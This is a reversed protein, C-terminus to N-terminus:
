CPTVTFSAEASVPRGMVNARVIYDGPPLVFPSLQVDPGAADGVRGGIRTPGADAAFGGLRAGQPLLYLEIFSEAPFDQAAITLVFDGGLEPSCRYEVIVEPQWSEAVMRAAYGLGM